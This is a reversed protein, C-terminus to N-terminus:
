QQSEGCRLVARHILGIVYDSEEAVDSALVRVVVYGLEQLLLDKRRDRRYAMPDRFHHYGDVEVALRLPQCLLDVELPSTGFRHTLKANLVFLGRTETRAQLLEFL